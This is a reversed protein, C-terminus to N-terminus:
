PYFKDKIEQTKASCSTLVQESLEIGLRLPWVMVV